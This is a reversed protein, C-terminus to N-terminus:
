SRFLRFLNAILREFGQQASHEGTKVGKDAQLALDWIRFLGGFGLSKALNLKVGIIGPPLVVSEGALLQWMIRSERLLMGIFAFLGSDDSNGSDKIFQQWVQGPNKGTQLGRLFAFIDIDQTYDLMALAEPTIAGQPCALAIKALELRVAGADQPLIATLAVANADTMGLGIRAAEKKVFGSLTRQDLPPLERYWGRKQAFVVCPLKAVHAPIKFKGKEFPVELCIFPWTSESGRSLAASLNKLADSALNQANRLIIAVPEAFLGQLTLKEWFAGELPQDGWFVRPAWNKGGGPPNQSLLGNIYERNLVSDSGVCIHFGPKPM